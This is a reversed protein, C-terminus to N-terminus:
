PGSHFTSDKDEFMGRVLMKSIGQDLHHLIKDFVIKEDLDAKLHYILMETKFILWM